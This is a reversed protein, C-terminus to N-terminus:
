VIPKDSGAHDIEKDKNWLTTTLIKSTDIRDRYQETTELIKNVGDAIMAAGDRILVLGEVEKRNFVTM